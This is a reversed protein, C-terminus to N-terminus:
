PTWKGSIPTWGAGGPGFGFVVDAAGGSNANRLYFASTSPNFLGVTTQGNGNWDGTLPLWGRGAPGFGFSIDAAGGSNANRLYFTSTGPNYLGITTLGNGNWDGTLPLWGRGGPGFSFSVDAAGGSNANRLYFTSAAPNYLGVTTRGNGNWDGTLPTWGRGAPGFGFSVEAAGGSNANRLYFSSTVPNYLGVTTQGNGNWDGTLPRWGRGPPGFGFVTNAPGASNANRLYFTSTAPNFLGNSMGSGAIATFSFSVACNATVAGTTYTSGSWGGAPCTGGVATNRTFGTNATVTFSATAGLLVLRSTPTVSGGPGATATVTRTVIIIPTFSFSVACNSAIAGTTYVNGSWGGPPCTGVVANNRTYGTNATVTFSATSGQNVIRLSPTVSGGTGATATVTRLTPPSPLADVARALNVRPKTIAVKGDTVPDGNTTLYQRVQSPTLFAGTRAKAASQLVAAAGAAYPAAASTGGFTPTYDGSTYGGAGRIDPSYADNSPAFMTLFSASNSYATVRNSLANEFAAWGTPCGPNQEKTACSTSAVCWGKSGVNADYVAGVSNVHSICAPWGTGNCFGDNGSSVFITIGAAVANAAATTMAPVASNCATQGSFFGGGFSTNIVLIPNAPDSNKNTIAWEWGAIMASTTASGTNGSSIKIAYLKAGPAVGGIYDGVTGLNGAAIGAAATGHANGLTPHPRPDNDNDGTDRGGIVKANFIPQGGGGLMPHSTDIGTDTVAISIGSGNYTSRPTVANMLPLGQRLQPELQWDHEIRVVDPHRAIADLADPTVRAAFGFQYSFRQTVQVGPGAIEGLVREVEETVANSLDVRISENQLDYFVADSEGDLGEPVEASLLSQAALVEAAATPRLSVIVQTEPLGARFDALVASSDLLKANSALRDTLVSPPTDLDSRPDTPEQGAQIIAPVLCFLSLVIFRSVFGAMPSAM